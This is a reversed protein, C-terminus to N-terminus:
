KPGQFQKNGSSNAVIEELQFQVHQTMRDIWIGELLTLMEPNEQIHQKLHPIVENGHRVLLDELPGAALDFLIKEGPHMEFIDRVIKLARIPEKWCLDDFAEYGVFSKEANPSDRGFASVDRYYRLWNIAIENDLMNCTMKFHARLHPLCYHQETM